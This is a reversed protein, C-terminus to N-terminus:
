DLRPHLKHEPYLHNQLDNTHTDTEVIDFALRVSVLAYPLGSIFSTSRSSYLVLLPIPVNHSFERLLDNSISVPFSLRMCLCTRVTLDVSRPDVRFGCCVSELVYM